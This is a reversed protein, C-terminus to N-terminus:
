GRGVPPDHHVTTHLHPLGAPRALRPPLTQRPGRERAASQGRGGEAGCVAPRYLDQQHRQGCQVGVTETICAYFM